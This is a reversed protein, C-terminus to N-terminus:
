FSFRLSGVVTRPSGAYNETRSVPAEIYRSDFLNRVAVALRVGQAVPYSASLDVRTYGSVRFSNNLDGPRASVLFIGGGLTLGQLRGAPIEYSNWLSGSWRPVGTLRRGEPIATDATVVADTYAASAFVRWNPLVDGALELELGRSRQEGTQISFGSNVPDATLVNQRRINFAAFTATLREPILDARVGVEYQEGTEPQFATGGFDAGLQPVFSRSWSAYVALNDRLRYLGSFRPAANDGSASSRNANNITRQHFNDYRVGGLLILRRGIDLQYQAFGSTMDLVDNRTTRLALRGPRAGYVPNFIDISALTGQFLALSRKAHLYEVGTTVAHRVIGTEFRATGDLLLDVNQMNDDQDTARRTLTRNDASLSVPDASYRHASGWGFSTSQRLTLWDTAQHETRINLDSQISRSNSWSEGLYRSPNVIVSRGTAVLGRDFAGTQDYHTLSVYVRTRDNPQWLFSPALFFREMPRAVDKFGEDRTLSGIFRGALGASASGGTVDLEGRTYGFMGGEVNLRAAPAFQPRRTVINILGGPDGIGYLVSAPGKLVEVREVNALDRFGNIFENAPNQLLGDVAYNQTRFGRLIYSEARNGASGGPRVSAVNGLVDDLSRAHQDEILDRPVVSVTQPTDRLPLDTRTATGSTTARYGQVPGDAREGSGEVQLQPLELPTAAEQASAAAALLLLPLLAPAPTLRM